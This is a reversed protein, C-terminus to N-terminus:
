IPRQQVVQLLVDQVVNEGLIQTTVKNLRRKIMSVQVVKGDFASKDNLAGYMNQIYADKLKPSLKTVIDVYDKNEIELSVVISVIQSVGNKDIIPLILAELEVFFVDNSKATKMKESQEIKAVPDLSAVAENGGFYFYTGAGVGCTLAM